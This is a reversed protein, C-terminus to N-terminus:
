IIRIKGGYSDIFELLKQVVFDESIIVSVMGGEISFLNPRATLFQRLSM